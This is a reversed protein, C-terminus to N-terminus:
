CSCEVSNPILSFNYSRVKKGCGFLLACLKSGLSKLTLIAFSTKDREKYHM